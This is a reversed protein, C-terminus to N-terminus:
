VPTEKSNEISSSKEKDINMFFGSLTEDLAEAIRMVTSITPNSINREIQSIISKSVGSKSSLEDLTMKKRKRLDGLRSGINLQIKKSMEFNSQM